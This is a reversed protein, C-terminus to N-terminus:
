IEAILHVFALLYKVPTVVNSNKSPNLLQDSLVLLKRIPEVLM